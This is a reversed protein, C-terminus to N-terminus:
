AATVGAFGAHVGHWAAQAGLIVGSPEGTTQSSGSALLAVIVAIFTGIGLVLCIVLLALAQPNARLFKIIAQM